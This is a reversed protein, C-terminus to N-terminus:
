LDRWFLEADSRRVYNADVAASETALGAALRGAAIRGVAGALARPVETMPAEAFRTGALMARLPGCGTSLVEVNEYQLTELWEALGGVVEPSVLALDASYVAGYTEGRRADLLAARFPRSGHWAIAQLNSVAAVPKGLAEGLGKVAALGVRIGTFSGPGATSAFCDIDSVKWDHQGLLREIATFLVHGFGETSHVEVEEVLEGDRVLALSGFESTTDISLIRSKV